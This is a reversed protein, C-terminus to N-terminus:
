SYSTGSGAASNGFRGRGRGRPPYGILKNCSEKLHGEKHCYSCKIGQKNVASGRVKTASSGSGSFSFHYHTKANAVFSNNVMYRHRQKEEQKILSYAQTVSSLPNMMLVQGRAASFSENLRTLFYLLRKRQDGDEQLKHSECTCNCKCVISSELASYGDWINKMWHYYIDVSKDGQELAHLDELVQDVRHGDICDFQDHLKNWMDQASNVFDMGVTIEDSM